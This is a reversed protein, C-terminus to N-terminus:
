ELCRVMLGHVLDGSEGFDQLEIGCVGEGTVAEGHLVEALALNVGCESFEGGEDLVVGVVDGRVLHGSLGHGLLAASIFGNCAEFRAKGGGLAGVVSVGGAFHLGEEVVEGM